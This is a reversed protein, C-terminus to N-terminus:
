DARKEVMTAPWVRVWRHEAIVLRKMDADADGRGGLVCRYRPNGASNAHRAAGGAQGTRPRGHFAKPSKMMVWNPRARRPAPDATAVALRRAGDPGRWGLTAEAKYWTEAHGDRFWRARQRQAQYVQVHQALLDDTL